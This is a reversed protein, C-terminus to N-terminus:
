FGADSFGKTQPGAVDGCGHELRARVVHVEEQTAKLLKLNPHALTSIEM